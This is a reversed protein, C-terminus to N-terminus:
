SSAANSGSPSAANLNGNTIVSGNQIATMTIVNVNSSSTAQAIQSLFTAYNSYFTNLTTGLVVNFGFNFNAVCKWGNLTFGSQCSTCTQANGICQACPSQCQVCVTQTSVPQVQATYGVGCSLCNTASSCTMCGAPCAKCNGQVLYNGDYCTTCTSLSTSSCRSCNANTCQSCQGNNLM